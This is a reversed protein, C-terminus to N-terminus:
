LQNRVGPEAAVEGIQDALLPSLARKGAGRRLTPLVTRHELGELEIAFAAYVACAGLLLGIAGSATKLASGGIVEYLATTFFRTATLLMVLGPIVKTQMGSVASLSLATAALFLFTGLAISRSGAPSTLHVLGIIAWSGSLVGMGTAAVPDRGLFGFICALLQLLPAFLLIIIATQLKEAPPVWGIESAALVVTSGALGLLGLAFPNAIPRLVVRTAALSTALTTERDPEVGAIALHATRRAADDPM